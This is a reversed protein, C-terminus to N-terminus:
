ESLKCAFANAAAVFGGSEAEIQKFFETELKHLLDKSVSEVAKQRKDRERPFPNGLSKMASTLLSSTKPMGILNFGQVAEPCLVGTSNGFLQRFGGNCIESQAFHAAYLQGISEKVTKYSSFFIDPDDYINIQDWIPEILQWYDDPRDTM